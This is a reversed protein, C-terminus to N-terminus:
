ARSRERHPFGVPAWSCYETVPSEIMMVTQERIVRDPDLRHFHAAFETAIEAGDAAGAIGDYPLSPASKRFGAFLCRNDRSSTPSARNKRAFVTVIIAGKKVAELSSGDHGSSDLSVITTNPRLACAVTAAGWRRGDFRPNWAFAADEQSVSPEYPLATWVGRTLRSLVMLRLGTEMGASGDWKPCASYAASLWTALM